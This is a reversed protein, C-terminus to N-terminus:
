YPFVYRKSVASQAADTLSIHLLVGYSEPTRKQRKHMHIGSANQTYSQTYATSFFYSFTVLSTPSSFAAWFFYIAASQENCKNRHLREEHIDQVSRFIRLIIGFYVFLAQIKRKKLLEVILFKTVFTRIHFWKEYQTDRRLAERLFHWFEPM